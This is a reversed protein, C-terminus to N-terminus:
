FISSKNKCQQLFVKLNKMKNFTECYRKKLYFVGLAYRFHFTLNFFDGQYVWIIKEDWLMQKRNAQATRVVAEVKSCILELGQTVRDTNMFMAGASVSTEPAWWIGCSFCWPNCINKYLWAKTPKGYSVFPQMKIGRNFKLIVKRTSNCLSFGVVHFINYFSSNSKKEKKKRQRFYDASVICTHM